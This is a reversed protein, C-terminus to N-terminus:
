RYIKFPKGNNWEERPIFENLQIHTVRLDEYADVGHLKLYEVLASKGTPGQVGGVAIPINRQISDLLRYLQDPSLLNTLYNFDHKIVKDKGKGARRLAVTLINGKSKKLHEETLDEASLLEVVEEFLNLLEDMKENVLSM